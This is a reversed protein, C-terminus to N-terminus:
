ARVFGVLDQAEHLIPTALARAREAGDRLIADIESQDDVLRKMEAGIPGLTEVALDTLRGKFESFPAGGVDACVADLSSDSLAAYIGVLNAAEPREDLGDLADPLPEPDTKAKKIKQAILDADDPFLYCVGLNNKRKRGSESHYIDSGGGRGDSSGGM